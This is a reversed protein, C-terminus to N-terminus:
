TRLIYYLPPYSYTVDASTAWSLAWISTANADHGDVDILPRFGYNPPSSFSFSFVLLPYNIRPPPPLYFVKWKAFADMVVLSLSLSFTHTGLVSSHM